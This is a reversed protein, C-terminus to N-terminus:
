KTFTKLIANWISLKYEIAYKLITPLNFILVIMAGVIIIGILILCFTGLSLKVIADQTNKKRQISAAIEEKQREMLMEQRRANEKNKKEELEIEFKRDREAIRDVLDQIVAGCFECQITPVVENKVNKVSGCERCRYIGSIPDRTVEPLKIAEEFQRQHEEEINKKKILKYSVYAAIGFIGFFIILESYKNFFLMLFYLIAIFGLIGLFM